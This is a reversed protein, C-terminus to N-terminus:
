KTRANSGPDVPQAVTSLDQRVSARVEGDSWSSVERVPFTTPLFHNMGAALYLPSDGLFAGWASFASGSGIIVHANTLLLLDALPNTDRNLIVGSLASLSKLEEDSGDSCVVIRDSWGEERLSKVADIFWPLPTVVNQLPHMLRERAYRSDTPWLRLGTRSVTPGPRRFDGLRVHLAVFPGPIPPPLVDARASELLKTLLLSSCGELPGFFGQIDRTVLGNTKSGRRILAGTESWLTSTRLLWERRAIEQPATPKFLRHYQRRDFDGRLAPGLRFKFWKPPLMEIEMRDSALVARAWPFLLNGLGARRLKGYVFDYKRSQRTSM